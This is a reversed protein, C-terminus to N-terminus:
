VQNKLAVRVRACSTGTVVQWSFHLFCIRRYRPYHSLRRDANRLCTNLFTPLGAEHAEFNGLFQHSYRCSPNARWAKRTSSHLRRCFSISWPIAFSVNWTSMPWTSIRLLSKRVLDVTPLTGQGQNLQYRYLALMSKRAYLMAPTADSYTLLSNMPLLMQDFRMMPIITLSQTTSSITTPPLQQRGKGSLM